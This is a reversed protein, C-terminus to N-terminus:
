DYIEDYCFVPGDTCCYKGKMMCHGCRGVGCKMHREESVFIQTKTIGKEILAQAVFKIMIPPGCLFVIKNKDPNIHDLIDTVFGKTAGPYDAEENMAIKIDMKQEKWGAFDEEFLMFSKKRFGFLLDVTGFNGRFKEIHKIIGRVPAVGSGGGIVVIDKGEFKKMEYGHGYPGRLGFKDGVKMECLRHTVNGVSRISLEFYDESSSCISIAAEGIGMASCQFFQGPDHCIKADFRFLFQDNTQQEKHVIPLFLIEDEAMKRDKHFIYDKSVPNM